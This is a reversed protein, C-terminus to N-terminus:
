AASRALGEPLFRQTEMIIQTKLETAGPCDPIEGVAQAILEDLYRIAGALGLDHAANPRHL